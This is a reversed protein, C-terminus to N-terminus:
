EVLYCGVISLHGWDGRRFIAKYHLLPPLEVTDNVSVKDDYKFDKHTLVPRKRFSVEARNIFEDYQGETMSVTGIESVHGDAIEYLRVNVM